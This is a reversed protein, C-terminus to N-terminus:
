MCAACAAIAAAPRVSWRLPRVQDIKGSAVAELLAERWEARPAPEARLMSAAQALAGTLKDDEQPEHMAM